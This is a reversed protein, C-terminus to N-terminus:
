KIQNEILPGPFNPGNTASAFNESFFVHFFSLHERKRRRYSTGDVLAFAPFCNPFNVFTEADINERTAGHWPVLGRGINRGHMEPTRNKKLSNDKTKVLKYIHITKNPADFLQM